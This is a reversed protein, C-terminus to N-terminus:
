VPQKCGGEAVSISETVQFAKQPLNALGLRGCGELQQQGAGTGSPVGAQGGCVQAGGALVGPEAPFSTSM